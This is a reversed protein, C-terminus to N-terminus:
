RGERERIYALGRLMYDWGTVGTLVAALWLLGMGMALLANSDVAPALLLGAIAVMQAATKWKALRTVPLKVDGLYERLGSVAVERLWIVAAPLAIEGRVGGADPAHVSLLCGLAIVVMAKDAIPDLMAGMASTQNWRRALWGDFWDTVAAGVFLTFGVWHSWPASLFAYALVVAPAAALRGFTLINPLTWLMPGKDPNGHPRALGHEGSATFSPM